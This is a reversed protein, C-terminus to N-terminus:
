PGQRPGFPGWPPGSKLTLSYFTYKYKFKIHPSFLAIWGLIDRISLENLLRKPVAGTEIFNNLFTPAKKVLNLTKSSNVM